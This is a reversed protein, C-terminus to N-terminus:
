CIPSFYETYTIIENYKVIFLIIISFTTFTLEEIEIKNNIIIKIIWATKIAYMKISIELDCNLSGFLLIKHVMMTKIAGM